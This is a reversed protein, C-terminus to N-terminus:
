KEEVKLRHLSDKIARQIDAQMESIYKDSISYKKSWFTVLDKLARAFIGFSYSIQESVKAKEIHLGERLINDRQKELAQETKFLLTAGEKSFSKLTSLMRETEEKSLNYSKALAEIDKDSIKIKTDEGESVTALKKLEKEIIKKNARENTEKATILRARKEVYQELTGDKMARLRMADDYNVEWTIKSGAANIKKKGKVKGLECYRYLTPASIGIIECAKKANIFTELLNNKEEFKEQPNEQPNKIELINEQPKLINEQLNKIELINEQLNKIELINEQPKLINEQLNKIELINEQPEM